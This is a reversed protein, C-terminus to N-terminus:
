ERNQQQQAYREMAVDIPIAVRRNQEDVWRYTMLEAKQSLMQDKLEWNEQNIVKQQLQEEQVNYFYAQGGVVVIILALVAVIGSVVVMAINVDGSHHSLAEAQDEALQEAQQQSEDTM